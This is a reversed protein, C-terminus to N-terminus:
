ITGFYIRRGTFGNLGLFGPESLKIRSIRTQNANEGLADM